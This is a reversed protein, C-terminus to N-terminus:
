AQPQYEPDPNPIETYDSYIDRIDQESHYGAGSRFSIPTFGKPVTNGPKVSQCHDTTFFYEKRDFSTHIIIYM